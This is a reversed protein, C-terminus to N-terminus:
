GQEQADILEGLLVGRHGGHCRAIKRQCALEIDEMEAALQKISTLCRVWGGTLLDEMGTEYDRLRRATSTNREYYLAGISSLDHGEALAQDVMVKGIAAPDKAAQAVTELSLALIDGPEGTATSIAFGKM